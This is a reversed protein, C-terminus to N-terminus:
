PGGEWRFLWKAIRWVAYTSGLWTSLAALPNAGTLRATLAFDLSCPRMNYLIPYTEPDEVHLLGILAQSNPVEQAWYYLDTHKSRDAPDEVQKVMGHAALWRLVDSCYAVKDPGPVDLDTAVAQANKAMSPEKWLRRMRDQICQALLIPHRQWYHAQGTAIRAAIRRGRLLPHGQRLDLRIGNVIELPEEMSFWRPRELTIIAWILESSTGPSLLGEDLIQKKVSTLAAYEDPTMQDALSTTLNAVLTNKVEQGGVCQCELRTPRFTALRKFRDWRRVDGRVFACRIPRFEIRLWRPERTIWGAETFAIRVLSFGLKRLLHFESELLRDAIGVRQEMPRVEGRLCIRRRAVGLRQMIDSRAVLSADICDPVFEHEGNICTVGDPLEAWHCEFADPVRYFDNDWHKPDALDRTRDIIGFRWLRRKLRNFLPLRGAPYKRAAEQLAGFARRQHKAGDDAVAAEPILYHGSAFAADPLDNPYLLYLEEVPRAPDLNRVLLDLLDVTRGHRTPMVREHLFEVCIPHGPSYVLACDTPPSM